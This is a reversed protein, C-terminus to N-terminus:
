RKDETPTCNPCPKWDDGDALYKDDDCIGCENETTDEVMDELSRLISELEDVWDEVKIEGQFLRRTLIYEDKTIM